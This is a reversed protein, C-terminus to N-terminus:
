QEKNGITRDLVVFKVIDFIRFFDTVYSKIQPSLQPQPSSPARPTVNHQQQDITAQEALHYKSRILDIFFFFTLNVLHFHIHQYKKIEIVVLNLYLVQFKQDQNKNNTIEM